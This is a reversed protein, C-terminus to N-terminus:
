IILRGLCLLRHSPEALSSLTTASRKRTSYRIDANIIKGSRTFEPSNRHAGATRRAQGLTRHRIASSIRRPIILESESESIDSHCDTSNFSIVEHVKGDAAPVYEDTCNLFALAMMLPLLYKLYKGM